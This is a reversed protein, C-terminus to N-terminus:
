GREGNDTREHWSWRAKFPAMGEASIEESRRVTFSCAVTEASSCVGCSVRAHKTNACPAPAPIVCGEHDRDSGPKGLAADGRQAILERIHLPSAFPGVRRRDGVRRNAGGHSLDFAKQGVKGEDGAAFREAPSHCRLRL